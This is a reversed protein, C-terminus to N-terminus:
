CLTSYMPSWYCRELVTIQHLRDITTGLFLPSAMSLNWSQWKILDASRETARLHMKESKPTFDPYFVVFLFSDLHKKNYLLNVINHIRFTSKFIRLSQLILVCSKAKWQKFYPCVDSNSQIKATHTPSNALKVRLCCSYFELVPVPMLSLKGKVKSHYLSPCQFAPSKSNFFYILKGECMGGFISMFLSAM